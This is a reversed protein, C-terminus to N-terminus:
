GHWTYIPGRTHGEQVVHWDSGSYISCRCGSIAAVKDWERGNKKHIQAELKHHADMIIFQQLSVPLGKKPLSRLKTCNRIVLKELSYFLEMEPLSLLNPCLRVSLIKLTVLENLGELTIIGKCDSIHIKTLSRLSPFRAGEGEPGIFRPCNFIRLKYLKPFSRTDCPFSWEELSKMMVIQLEKLSPFLGNGYFENGIRRVTNMHAIRLEKLQPLQGLVPLMKLGNCEELEVSKIQSLLNSELWSPRIVDGPYGRIKLRETYRNPELAELVEHEKSDLQASNKNSKVKSSSNFWRLRLETVYKKSSLQAQIANEKSPVNELGVIEACGKINNVEHLLNLELAEKNKVRVYVSGERLLSQLKVRQGVDVTFSKSIHIFVLSSMRYISKPLKLHNYDGVEVDFLNKRIYLVALHHLKSFSNSAFKYNNNRFCLYRLHKCGSVNPVSDLLWDIDLVRIRKLKILVGDICNNEPFWTRSLFILTRLKHFGSIDKILNIGSPTVSLHRISGLNKMSEGNKLLSCEGKSVHCALDNMLDHMVYYEKKGQKIVQIFSRVVLEDFYSKGDGEKQLHVFGNAIWMHVLRDPKLYYGKPFLSCYAFCRQLHEPLHEYSRHLIEMIGDNDLSNDNLIKKWQEIDPKGRLERGVVKIALALGKLKEVIEKGIAELEKLNDLSKGDFANLKFLSWSDADNLGDLPIPKVSGFYGLTCAVLNQQTTVVIKSGAKASKLPALFESWSKEYIYKKSDDKVYWVDDLVLLIKKSALERELKKQLTNFSAGTSSFNECIDKLMQKTFEVKDFNDSVFLWMLKDFHGSVRPDNFVMQALTTKGM